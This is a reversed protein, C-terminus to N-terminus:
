SFRIRLLFNVHFCAAGPWWNISKKKLFSCLSWETGAALWDGDFRSECCLLTAPTTRFGNRAPKFDSPYPADLPRSPLLAAIRWCSPWRARHTNQPGKPWSSRAAICLMWTVAPTYLGAQMLSYKGMTPPFHYHQYHKYFRFGKYICFAITRENVHTLFCCTSVSLQLMVVDYKNVVRCICFYYHFQVHDSIKASCFPFSQCFIELVFWSRSILDLGESKHVRGSTEM